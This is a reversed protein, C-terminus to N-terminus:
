SRLARMLHVFLLILVYKKLHTLYEERTMIENEGIENEAQGPVVFVPILIYYSPTIPHDM